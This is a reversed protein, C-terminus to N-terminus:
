YDIVFRFPHIEAQGCWVNRDQPNDAKSKYEMWLEQAGYHLPSLMWYSGLGDEIMLQLRDDARRILQGHLDLVYTEGPPVPDTVPKGPIVVDQGGEMTIVENNYHISVTFKDMVPFRLPYNEHNTMALAVRVPTQQGREPANWISDTKINFAIQFECQPIEQARELEQMAPCMLFHLILPSVLSILATSYM